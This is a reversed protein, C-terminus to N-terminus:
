IIVCNNIVIYIIRLFYNFYKRVFIIIMLLCCMWIIWHVIIVNLLNYRLLEIILLMLMWDLQMIWVIDVLELTWWFRYLVGLNIGLLCLHLTLAM